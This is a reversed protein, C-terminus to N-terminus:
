PFLLRAGAEARSENLSRKFEALEEEAQQIEVPDDTADEKLWGAILDRTAQGAPRAPLHEALLQRVCDAVPIGASHSASRLRAAEESSLEITVTM